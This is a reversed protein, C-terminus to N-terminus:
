DKETSEIASCGPFLKNEGDKSTRYIEGGQIGGLGYGSDSKDPLDRKRRPIGAAQREPVNGRRGEKLARDNKGTCTPERSQLPLTYPV